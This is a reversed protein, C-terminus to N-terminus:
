LIEGEQSVAAAEWVRRARPPRRGDGCWRQIVESLAEGRRGNAAWAVYGDPRVLLADPLSAPEAAGAAVVVRDGGARAEGAFSREATRDVLVFRRARLLDYLRAPRGEAEVALDPARRGVIRHARWRSAPPYRLTLGCLENLVPIQFRRHALLRVFLWRLLRLPAARSTEYRFALDTKKLTAAGVPQREQEYTDLLGPPASGTVEAALKWGLNFADQMGVQLGQGGSPIHTHAADGALLVRGLRYREAQRQESRYRSMWIPDHIGLDRGLIAGASEAIEDLALPTSAPTKMREHDLIILRFTGDGFPFVAVMGRRATRAHVPPDPPDSLHVDAVILSAEYSSGHFEIGALSRVASRVGDCGVVFRAREQGARDGVETRVTVGAEGQELGVVRVGREIEVGAQIAWSELAEEIRSQPLILMFNFRSDVLGFDLNRDGTGLPGYRWPLGREIMAGAQGRMELLELTHPTLSFARSRPSPRSRQELVRCRVGAGALEAALTLGTPGAGVVIVQTESSV